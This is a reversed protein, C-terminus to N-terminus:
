LELEGIMTKGKAKMTFNRKTLIKKMRENGPFFEAWVKKLGRARAIDLVYDVMESGLGLNQWPDAIAIAMNGSENYPDAILRVVGIFRQRKREILEGVLALSIKSLAAKILPM